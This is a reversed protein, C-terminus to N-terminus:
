FTIITEHIYLSKWKFPWSREPCSFIIGETHSCSPRSAVIWGEWTLLIMNWRNLRGVQDKLSTSCDIDSSNMCSLQDWLLCLEESAGISWTSCFGWGSLWTYPQRCSSINRQLLAKWQQWHRAYYSNTKPEVQNNISLMWHGNLCHSEACLTTEKFGLGVLCVLKCPLTSPSHFTDSLYAAVPSPLHSM